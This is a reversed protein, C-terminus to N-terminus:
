TEIRSSGIDLRKAGAKKLLDLLDFFAAPVATGFDVDIINPAVHLSHIVGLEPKGRDDELDIWRTFWEELETEALAALHHNFRVSDWCFAQVCLSIGESEIQVPGFSLVKDPMFELIRHKGDNAVYDMCYLNRYIAGSQKGVQIKLEAAGVPWERQREEVFEQFQSVFHNRVRTILDELPTTV